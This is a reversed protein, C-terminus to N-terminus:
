GVIDTFATDALNQVKVGNAVWNAMDSAGQNVYMKGTVVNWLVEKNTTTNRLIILNDMEEELISPFWFSDLVVSEDYTTTNLYQYGVVNPEFTTPEIGTYDAVFYSRSPFIQRAQALRSRSFYGVRQLGQRWQDFTMAGPEIDAVDARNNAVSYSIRKANPFLALDEESWAYQGDIPYLICPPNFQVLNRANVADYCKM